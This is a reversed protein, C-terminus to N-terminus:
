RNNANLEIKNLIADIQKCLEDLTGDNHIKYDAINIVGHINHGSADSGGHDERKAQELFKEFTVNDKESGRKSIREYRIAVDADVGFIIGGVSRVFEAEGVTHLAELVANEPNSKKLHEYTLKPMGAPDQSRIESALASMSDRDIHVGKERLLVKLLGSSSYHAFGKNSVLYDVVAGKGAGITGAIGIIM